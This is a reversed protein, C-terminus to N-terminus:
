LESNKLQKMDSNASYMMSVQARVREDLSSKSLLTAFESDLASKGKVELQQWNGSNVTDIAQQKASTSIIRDIDGINSSPAIFNTSKLGSESNSQTIVIPLYLEEVDDIEVNTIVAESQKTQLNVSRVYKHIADIAVASDNKTKSVLILQSTLISEDQNTSISGLLSRTRNEAITMDKNVLVMVPKDLEYVRSYLANNLSTFLKGYRGSIMNYDRQMRNKINTLANAQQGMDILIAEIKSTLAAIKQSIQSQILSYFGYNVNQCVLEAGEEEAKIVAHQM